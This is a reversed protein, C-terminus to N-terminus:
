YFNESFALIENEAVQRAPWNQSKSLVRFGLGFISSKMLRVLTQVTLRRRVTPPM